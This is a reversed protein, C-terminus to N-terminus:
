YGAKAGPRKKVFLGASRAGQGAFRKRRAEKPDVNLPRYIEVRDQDLLSQSLDVRHGWIGVLTSAQDLTPFLQLFGSAHLAELVTSGAALHLSVERVERALPSYVLTVKILKDNEM